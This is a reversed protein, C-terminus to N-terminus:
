ACTAAEEEVLQCAADYQGQDIDDIIRCDGLGTPIVLLLRGNRVLRATELHHWVAERLERPVSVPLRLRRLLRLLRRLTEETGLGLGVAVAAVTALGIAVAEGHRYRLYGTAAELGHGVSHGLNLLRRLDQEFPDDALLKLKIGIAASIIPDLRELFARPANADSPWGQEMPLAELQEFLEPSDILSVKVVEALGNLCEALPLTALCDPDIVVLSPHFFSGILNKGTSHDVGVKGGIAGDVQGMLSTAVNVYPIGRLYTAAVFGVLDCVVGGGLAVLLSRRRVGQARLEDWLHQAQPVSKSTEGAPLRLQRVRAGTLAIRGATFEAYLPGVNNDTVLVASDTDHAAMVQGLPESIWPLTGRGIIIEYRDERNVSVRYGLGDTEAQITGRGHTVATTVRALAPRTALM